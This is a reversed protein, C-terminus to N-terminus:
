KKKIEIVMNKDNFVFDYKERLAKPIYADKFSEYRIKKWLPALEIM